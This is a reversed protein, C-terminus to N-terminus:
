RGVHLRWRLQWVGHLWKRDLESRRGIGMAGPWKWRMRQRSLGCVVKGRACQLFHIARWLEGRSRYVSEAVLAHFDRVSIGSYNAHSLSSGRSDSYVVVITNGQGWVASESQTVKPYTEGGTILNVDTGGGFSTPSMWSVPGALAVAAM